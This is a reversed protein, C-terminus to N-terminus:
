RGEGEIEAGAGGLKQFESHYGAPFHLVDEVDDALGEVSPETGPHWTITREGDDTRIVISRIPQQFATM